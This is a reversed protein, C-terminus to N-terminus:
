FYDSFLSMHIELTTSKPLMAPDYNVVIERPNVQGKAVYRGNQNNGEYVFSVGDLMRRESWFTILPPPPNNHNGTYTHINYDQIMQVGNTSHVYVSLSHPGNPNSIWKGSGIWVDTYLISVPLFIWM